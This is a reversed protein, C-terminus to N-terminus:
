VDTGDLTHVGEEGKGHLKAFEPHSRRRRATSRGGTSRIWSGTMTSVM